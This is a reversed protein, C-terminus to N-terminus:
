KQAVQTEPFKQKNAGSFRFGVGVRVLQTQYFNVMCLCIQELM